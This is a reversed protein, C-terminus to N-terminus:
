GLAGAEPQGLIFQCPMQVDAHAVQHVQAFGAEWMDVKAHGDPVVEEFHHRIQAVPSNDGRFVL